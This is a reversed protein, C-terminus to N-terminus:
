APSQAPSHATNRTLQSYASAFPALLITYVAGSLLAGVLTMGVLWPMAQMMWVDPAQSFFAEISEPSLAPLGGLAFFVGMFIGGLVIELGLMTLVLLLGLGLLSWSHGKTLSWSEFLQFNRTAFTAPGALSFRLCIWIITVICAIVDLTVGIGTIWGSGAAHGILVVVLGIMVAALVVLLAFIFLLIMMCLYLLGQWVEDMGLKLNLFGGDSPRLMARFVAANFVAMALIGLLFGLSQFSQVKQMTHMFDEMGAQPDGGAIANAVFEGYAKLVEPGVTWMMLVFPLMKLVSYVIGWTLVHLPKRAVLGFGAGYADGISFDAM